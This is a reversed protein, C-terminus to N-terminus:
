PRVVKVTKSGKENGTTVKVYVRYFAQSGSAVLGEDTQFVLVGPPNSAIVQEEDTRYKDGFCARLEYEALNPNDSATYTVVAMSLEEDWVVSANVAKPTSGAPPTLRPLSEYLAHDKPFLGQVVQRYQKLREYVPDFVDDRQERAVTAQNEAGAVSAFANSMTTGDTLFTAHAYGGALLLPPTFGVIAPTNTNIDAWLSSMDDIFDRYVGASAQFVPVNPIAPIYRTNPLNGRVAPGFQLFRERMSVRLVDRTGRATQLTNDVTQVDGVGTDVSARDTVLDARVYGGILELDTGGGANLDADVATWHALFEDITPLWSGVSTIAM